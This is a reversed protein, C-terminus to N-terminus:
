NIGPKVYREVEVINSEFTLPLNATSTVEEGNVLITFSNIGKEQLIRKLTDKVNDTAQVKVTEGAITIEVENNDNMDNLNM